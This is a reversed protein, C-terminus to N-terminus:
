LVDFEYSLQTIIRYNDSKSNLGIPVGVGLEWTGPLDWVLGPTVFLENEEGSNNWENTKWNFEATIRLQQYPIFFGINWNLEHAEPEDEDPDAHNKTRDVFGISVQTFIQSNNLNPFDKALILFPEYETFGETLEKDIDGTSFGIDFGVAAHFDSDAINMFSYKTGIEFDGVGRTTPGSEPNRNVHADWAVEFQWSDTIGYEVIIPIQIIDRDDGESFKPALTFQVEGEEQPYVLETQFVEQLPQEYNREPEGEEAWVKPLLIMMGFLISAVLVSSIVKVKVKAIRM